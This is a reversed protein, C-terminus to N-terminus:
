QMSSCAFLARSYPAESGSIASDTSTDAAKRAPPAIVCPVWAILDAQFLAPPGVADAQWAGLIRVVSVVSAM